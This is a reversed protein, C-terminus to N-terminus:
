YVYPFSQLCFGVPGTLWRNGTEGVGLQLQRFTYWGLFLPYMSFVPM